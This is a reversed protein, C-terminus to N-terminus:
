RRKNTGLIFLLRQFMMIMDVYIGLSANIPDFPPIQSWNSPAPHSEAKIIYIYVYVGSVADLGGEIGSHDLYIVRTDLAYM